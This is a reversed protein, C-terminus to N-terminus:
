CAEREALFARIRAPDSAGEMPGAAMVCLAGAACAARLSAAPDAGTIWGALFTAGFTDGAGTPDIEHVAFGPQEIRRDGGFWTAGDRGRKLVVEIGRRTLAAIAADEDPAGPVLALAEGESPLLLATLELVGALRAHGAADLMEPRLNPDFSVTGGAAHIHRAAELIMQALRPAGLASGMVHLHTARAVEAASAAAPEIRGCAADALHFVFDRGGEPRYRVFATGTTATPHIQVATVDVGAARLRALNLRGFDDDGVASVMATAIGQRALQDAFIAPAGSPYPGRLDIPGAFGHGRTTAMIEVLIEGIVLVRPAM